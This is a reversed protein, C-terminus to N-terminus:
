NLNEQEINVKRFGIILKTKILYDVMLKDGKWWNYFESKDLIIDGNLKVPTKKCKIVFKANNTRIKQLVELEITKKRNSNLDMTLLVIPRVIFFCVYVIAVIVFVVFAEWYHGTSNPSPEGNKGGSFPFIFVAITFVLIITYLNKKALPLMEYTILDVDESSLEESTETSM